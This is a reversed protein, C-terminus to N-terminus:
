TILTKFNHFSRKDFENEPLISQHMQEDFANSGQMISISCCSKELQRLFASKKPSSSLSKVGSIQCPDEYSKKQDYILM